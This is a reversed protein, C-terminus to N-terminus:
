LHANVQARIDAPLVNLLQEKLGPVVAVAGVVAALVAAIAVVVGGALASGSDSNSGQNSGDASSDDSGNGSSPTEDDTNDDGEDLLDEIQYVTTTGSVENGVVLLHENNPSDEKNIFAFGEPGLDGALKTSEYNEDDYEVTFDRNNVYTQYKANAPDTVDYVYIGGVREAGIFAFTRDGIQGITLAEPEPGKNDSRDDFDPDENDANHHFVGAANLSATVEEFKSGSDFVVNGQADYISFSRSGYAYLEDFCEEEANWGSANSLKLNGAVEKEALAELDVDGLAGECVLGDEVADALEIEDTYVGSGGDEEEVGWERADGENATAFYTQGNATFAHISDPMSLGKVPITRLEAADDKNSPDIAVQTHDAIHAPVINEVSASAIDIIAIANNEQLTVFAKGNASAVYEPELDLSPQNHHDEPGFIRIDEHLAGPADFAEFGATRVDGQAAAAVTEPLAIISVSGAPDEVYATGETNLENSPEGENAVLAYHGEETIHVNDPLSGISVRGLEASDLDEAAVDFFLAEGALLKNSQQVAAIALGDERVAVSNIEKDAGASVSGIKTPTEPNSADLVDIQGSQANVVLIRQSDAHYAVIEAASVGLEGSAYNGIPAMNITADAASDTHVNDVIGNFDQANAVAPSIIGGTLAVAACLSIARRRISM